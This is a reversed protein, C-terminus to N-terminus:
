WSSPSMSCDRRESWVAVYRSGRNTRAWKANPLRARLRPLNGSAFLCKALADRRNRSWSASSTKGSDSPKVAFRRVSIMVDIVAMCTVGYCGVGFLDKTFAGPTQRPPGLRSRDQLISKLHQLKTQSLFPVRDLASVGPLNM